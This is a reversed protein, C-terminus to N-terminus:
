TPAEEVNVRLTVFVVVNVEVMSTVFIAMPPVSAVSKLSVFLQVERASFADQVIETVKVGRVVPASLPVSVTVLEEVDSGTSVALRVPVPSGVVAERM